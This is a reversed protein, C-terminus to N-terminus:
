CSLLQFFNLFKPRWEGQAYGQNLGASFPQGSRGPAFFKGKM